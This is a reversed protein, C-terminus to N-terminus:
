KEQDKQAVKGYKGGGGAHLQLEGIRAAAILEAIKQPVVEQLHEFSVDHLIAMETGFHNLLKERM